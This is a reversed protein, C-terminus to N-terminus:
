SGGGNIETVTTIPFRSVGFQCVRFPRSWSNEIKYKGVPLEWERSNQELWALFAEPRIQIDWMDAMKINILQLETQGRYPKSRKWTVHPHTHRFVEVVSLPLIVAFRFSKCLTKILKMETGYDKWKGFISYGFFIYNIDPGELPFEQEALIRYNALQDTSVKFARGWSSAKVEYATNTAFNILDPVQTGRAHARMKDYLQTKGGIIKAGLTEGVDGILWNVQYHEDFTVDQAFDFRGQRQRKEWYTGKL